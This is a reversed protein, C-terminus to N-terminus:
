ANRFCRRRFYDFKSKKRRKSKNGKEEALPGKFPLRNLEGKRRGFFSAASKRMWSYRMPPSGLCRKTNRRQFNELGGSSSSNDGGKEDYIPWLWIGAQLSELALLRQHCQGKGHVKRKSPSCSIVHGFKVMDLGLTLGEAIFAESWGGLGCFLDLVLPKM